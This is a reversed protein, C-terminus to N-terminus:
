LATIMRNLSRDLIQMQRFGVALGDLSAKLRASDGTELGARVKDLLAALDRMCDGFQGSLSRFEELRGEGVDARELTEKVKAEIQPMRGKIFGLVQDLSEAFFEVPAEGKMLREALGHLATFSVAGGSGEVLDLAEDEESPDGQRLNSGCGACVREAASNRKGCRPCELSAEELSKEQFHAQKAFLQMAARFLEGSGAIIHSEQRDEFFLEMEELSARVGELAGVADELERKQGDDAAEMEQMSGITQELSKRRQALVERYEEEGIRGRLLARGAGLIENIFPSPTPPEEGEFYDASSKWSGLWAHELNGILDQTGDDKMPFLGGRNQHSGASLRLRNEAILRLSPGVPAATAGREVNTM